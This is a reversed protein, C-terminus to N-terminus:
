DECALAQRVADAAAAVAREAEAREQAAARAADRRAQQERAQERRWVFDEAESAAQERLREELVSRREGDSLGPM